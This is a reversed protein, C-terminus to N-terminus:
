NIMSIMMKASVVDMNFGIILQGLAEPVPKGKLTRAFALANDYQENMEKVSMNQSVASNDENIM